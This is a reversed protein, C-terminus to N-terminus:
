QKSLQLPGDAIIKQTDKTPILGTWLKELLDIEWIAYSYLTTTGNKAFEFVKIAMGNISLLMQTIVGTGCKKGLKIRKIKTQLGM